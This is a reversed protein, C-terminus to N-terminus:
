FAKLPDMLTALIFPGRTTNKGLARYYPYSHITQIVQYDLLECSVFWMAACAVLVFLVAKYSLGVGLSAVQILGGLACNLSDVTHDFIHGLFM